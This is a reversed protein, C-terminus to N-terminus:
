ASDGRDDTQNARLPEDRELPHEETLPLRQPDGYVTASSSFVLTHLRAEQMAEVLTIAGLVNNQYYLLPKEASEGVAKLGALHVVAEISNQAFISRLVGRDRVDGVITTIKKGTIQEVRRLAELSGNSLNDLVVVAQGSQLLEVCTHTGIYGAGGTVLTRRYWAESARRDPHRAPPAPLYVCAPAADAQTNPTPSVKWATASSSTRASSRLERACSSTATSGDPHPRRPEARRGEINKEPQEIEREKVGYRRATDPMLQMLGVACKDSVAKPNYNSEATIM